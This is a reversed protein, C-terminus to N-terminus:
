NNKKKNKRINELPSVTIEMKKKPQEVPIEKIETSTKKNDLITPKDTEKNKGKKEAEVPPTTTKEVKEKKPTDTIKETEVTTQPSDRKSKEKFTYKNEIDERLKQFDKEGSTLSSFVKDWINVADENIKELSVKAAMGVKNKYKTDNLLKTLETILDKEKTMDIKIIGDQFFLDKAIDLSVLCPLGHEMAENLAMPSDPILSSYIFISSEKCYYAIKSDFPVFLINKTLESKRILQSIQLTQSDPSIINLKADPIQKVISSMAKIVSIIGNNEDNLKGLLIINHNNLSSLQTKTTDYINPIFINNNINLKKFDDYDNPSDQIFADFLTISKLNRSTKITSSIFIDNFIGILKIGLSKLWKIEKEKIVDNVILYNINESKVIREILGHDYYANTRTINKDYTPEKEAPAKTLFFISYKKLKLFTEGSTIMFETLIPYLFAIGPKKVIKTTPIIPKSKIKPEEAKPKNKPEETKESKEKKEEKETNETEVITTKKSSEKTIAIPKQTAKFQYKVIQYNKDSQPKNFYLLVCILLFIILFVISLVLIVIKYQNEPKKQAYSYFQIVEMKNLGGKENDIDKELNTEETIEM